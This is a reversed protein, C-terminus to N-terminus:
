FNYAIHAAFGPKISIQGGAIEQFAPLQLSIGATLNKTNVDAGAIFQLVDSGSNPNLIHSVAHQMQKQWSCQLYPSLAIKSLDVRKGALLSIDLNDGYRFGSSNATNYKYSASFNYFWKRFGAKYAGYALYDVSGSGINFVQDSLGKSNGPFHRGVPLKIGGGVIVTQRNNSSLKNWAIWGGTVSIDGPGSLHEISSGTSRNKQFPVQVSLQVRKAAHIKAFLAYNFVAQNTISEDENRIRYQRRLYSIGIFSKALHPFLFPNYNNASSGCIDCANAKACCMLVVAM